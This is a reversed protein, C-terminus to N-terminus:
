KWFVTEAEKWNIAYHELEEITVKEMDRCIELFDKPANTEVGYRIGARIFILAFTALTFRESPVKRGHLRFAMYAGYYHEGDLCNMRNTGNELIGQKILELGFETMSPFAMSRGSSKMLEEIYASCDGFVRIYENQDGTESGVLMRGLVVKAAPNGIEAFKILHNIVQNSNNSAYYHPYVQTLTAMAGHNGNYAAMTLWKVANALDNEMLFMYGYDFQSKADGQEAKIRLDNNQM